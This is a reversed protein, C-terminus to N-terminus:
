TRVTRPVPRPTTQDSTNKLTKKEGIVHELPPPIRKDGKTSDIFRYAQNKGEETEKVWSDTKKDRMKHKQKRDRGGVKVEQSEGTRLKVLIQTHAHTPPHAHRNTDTYTDARTTCGCGPESNDQTLVSGTRAEITVCCSVCEGRLSQKKGERTHHRRFVEYEMAQVNVGEARSVKGM